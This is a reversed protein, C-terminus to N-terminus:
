ASVIKIKMNDMESWIRTWHRLRNHLEKCSNKTQTFSDMGTTGGIMYVSFKGNTVSLKSTRELKFPETIHRMHFSSHTGPSDVAKLTKVAKM